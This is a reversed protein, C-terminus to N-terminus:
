LQICVEERIRFCPCFCRILDVGFDIVCGLFGASRERRGAQQVVPLGYVPNPVLYQQYSPAPCIPSRHSETESVTDEQTPYQFLTPYSLEPVPFPEAHDATHIADQTPEAQLWSPLPPASPQTSACSYCCHCHSSDPYSPELGLSKRKRKKRSWFKLKKLAKSMKM